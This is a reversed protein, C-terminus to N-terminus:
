PQDEKYRHAKEPHNVKWEKVAEAVDAWAIAGRWACYIVGTIYNLAALILALVCLAGLTTVIIVSGAVLYAYQDVTM